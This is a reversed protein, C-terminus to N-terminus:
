DAFRLRAVVAQHLRALAVLLEDRCKKFGTTSNTGAVARDAYEVMRRFAAMGAQATRNVDDAWKSGARSERRVLGILVELSHALRGRDQRLDMTELRWKDINWGEGPQISRVEAEFESLEEALQRYSDGPDGLTRPFPIVNQQSCLVPVSWLSSNPYSTARMAAIAEAYAVPLELCEGLAQYLSDFFLLAAEATISSYMGLVAPVGAEAITRIVGPNTPTGRASDCISLMVAAPRTTQKFFEAFVRSDVPTHQTGERLYVTGATGHAAVHVARMPAELADHLRTYHANDCPQVQVLGAAALAALRHHISQSELSFNVSPLSLPASDALLVLQPPDSPTTPQVSNGIARYVCIQRGNLNKELPLTLLEWPVNDLEKDVVEIRVFAVQSVVTDNSEIQQLLKGMDVVRALREASEETADRIESQKGPKDVGYVQDYLWLNWKSFDLEKFPSCFPEGSEALVAVTNDAGRLQVRLNVTTGGM